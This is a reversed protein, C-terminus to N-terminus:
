AQKKVFSNLWEWVSEIQKQKDDKNETASIMQLKSYLKERDVSSMSDSAPKVLPWFMDRISDMAEDMVEHDTDEDEMGMRLHEMIPKWLEEFDKKSLEEFPLNCLPCRTSKRAWKRACDKHFMHSIEDGTDHFDEIHDKEHMPDFCISCAEDKKNSENSDSKNTGSEDQEDPGKSKEDQEDVDSGNIDSKNTASEDEEDSKKDKLCGFFNRVSLNQWWSGDPEDQEDTESGGCQLRLGEAHSVGDPGSALAIAYVAVATLGIKSKVSSGMKTPLFLAITDTYYRQKYYITRSKLAKRL